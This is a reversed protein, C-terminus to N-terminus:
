CNNVKVQVNFTTGKLINSADSRLCKASDVVVFVVLDLLLLQLFMCCGALLQTHNSVCKISHDVSGSFVDTDFSM